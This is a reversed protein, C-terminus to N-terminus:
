RGTPSGAFVLDALDEARVVSRGALQDRPRTTLFVGRPDGVGARGHSGRVLSADLPISRTAPDAFLEVPDYGPKRHIDVTRAWQPRRDDDLWWYYSFWADPEAVCVLEGSREHRIGRERQAYADLVEAVGDAAALRQRTDTIIRDRAPGTAAPFYVHAVQHDVM